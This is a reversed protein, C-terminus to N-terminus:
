NIAVVCRNSLTYKLSFIFIKPNKCSNHLFFFKLFFNKQYSTMVGGGEGRRLGGVGSYWKLHMEPSGEPYRTTDQPHRATDQPTPNGRKSPLCGVVIFVTVYKRRRGMEISYPLWLCLKAEMLLRVRCIKTKFIITRNITSLVGGGDISAASVNGSQLYNASCVPVYRRRNRSSPPPPAISFNNLVGM